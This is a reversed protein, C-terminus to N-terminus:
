IKIKASTFNQGLDGTKLEEDNESIYIKRCKTRLETQDEIIEEYIYAIPHGRDGLTGAIDLQELICSQDM